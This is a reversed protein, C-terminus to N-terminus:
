VRKWRDLGNLNILLVLLKRMGMTPHLMNMVPTCEQQAEKKQGLGGACWDCGEM